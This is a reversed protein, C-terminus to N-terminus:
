VTKRAVFMGWKAKIVLLNATVYDGKVSSMMASSILSIKWFHEAHVNLNRSM